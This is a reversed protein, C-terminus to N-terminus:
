NLKKRLQNIEYILEKNKRRLYMRRIVQYVTKGYGYCPLTERITVRSVNIENFAIWIYLYRSKLFDRNSFASERFNPTSYASEILDALRDLKEVAKSGQM